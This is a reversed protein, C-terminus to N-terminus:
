GIELVVNGASGGAEVMAHAAAIRALPLRAGIRHRLVGAALWAGLQGLAAARDAPNLKYVIM